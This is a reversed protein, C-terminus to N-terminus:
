ANVEGSSEETKDKCAECLHRRKTIEWDEDRLIEKMEEWEIAGDTELVYGCNDCKVVTTTKIKYM